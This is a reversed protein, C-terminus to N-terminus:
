LAYRTCIFHTNNKKIYLCPAIIPLDSLKFFAAEKKQEVIYSHVHEDFTVEEYIALHFFIDNEIKIVKLIKGFQKETEQLNTVIFTGVKYTTGSVQIKNFIEISNVYEKFYNIAEDYVKSDPSFFIINNESELNHVTQCMKLIQKTAITQLLNKTCSTSTVNAKLEKHRSEFRMCWFHICPGNELLIRPYHTLFHFKPKLPGFLRIYMENHHKILTKLVDIDSRIIPPSTLIDLIQRLYKYLKWCENDDPVRDGIILGFYRVFCLMESASMRLHIGQNSKSSITPPPISAENTGYDFDKIRSNLFELTFCEDVFVLHQIVSQMVYVCVGELLDHMLDLSLNETFHFYNIKHFACPEKIGSTSPNKDKVAKDYNIRTRLQSEDEVTLNATEQSSIMCIRCFHNARFCEVLGFISNLGLNDGLILTLRFKVRRVIGDVIVQIGESQLYNIEEIIKRFVQENTSKLKDATHVLTTLFISTLRSAIKPPLCAIFAYLAGFKNAGSHSGLPNGTELDDYFLFLPFIICDTVDSYKNKWLDGQMINSIIHTETRLQAVYQMTQNLIGPIELFRKLTKRLPIHIGYLFEPVFKLENGVIKSM